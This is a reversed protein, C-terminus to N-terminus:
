ACLQVQTRPKPKPKSPSPTQQRNVVVGGEYEDLTMKLAMLEDEMQKNESTLRENEAQSERLESRLLTM